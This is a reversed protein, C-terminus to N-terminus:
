LDLLRSILESNENWDPLEQPILEPYVQELEQRKREIDIKAYIETTKIDVHGLFNRIYLIDIGSQYLHMAKTHRFSHPSIVQPLQPFSKELHTVYKQVIYNVGSRSLRMGKQNSFLPRDPSARSDLKSEAMYKKLLETTNPMLPVSRTKNGKGTLILIPAESFRVDRVKLDCLESVRAASDYLVSLLTLDRRGRQTAKDPKKLLEAVMEPLLYDMGKQEVKKQPIELNKQFQLLKDPHESQLYKSFAHLAALRQNQTTISNSREKALWDLFISINDCTFDQLQVKQTAIRLQSDLFKLFLKFTTQYSTITNLSVNKRTQLYNFYNSLALAFDTAKM